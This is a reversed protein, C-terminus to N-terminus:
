QGPGSKKDAEDEKERDKIKPAVYPKIRRDIAAMINKMEKETMTGYCGFVVQERRALMSQSKFLRGQYGETGVSLESIPGEKEMATKVDKVLGRVAASDAVEAMFVKCERNDVRYLATVGGAKFLGLGLPDEKDLRETAPVRNEYPLYGVLAIDTIDRPIRDSVARAFNILM